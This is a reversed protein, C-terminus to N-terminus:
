ACGAGNQEKDIEEESLAQIEAEIEVAVADRACLEAWGELSGEGISARGEAEADAFWKLVQWHRQQDSAADANLAVLNTDTLPVSHDPGQRIAQGASSRAPPSNPSRHAQSCGCAAGSRAIM